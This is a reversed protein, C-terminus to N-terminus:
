GEDATYVALARTVPAITAPHLGFSHGSLKPFSAPRRRVVASVLVFGLACWRINIKREFILNM